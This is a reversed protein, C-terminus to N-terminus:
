VETKKIELKKEIWVILWWDSSDKFYLRDVLKEIIMFLGRWRIWTNKFFWNLKKKNRILIMEKSTKHKKWNWSDEVEIILNISWEYISFKVRIKNSEGEISWYEIANNNLEDVILMLRSEWIKNIWLKFSLDSIFERIIKASRFDSIYNFCIESKEKMNLKELFDTDYSFDKNVQTCLVSM